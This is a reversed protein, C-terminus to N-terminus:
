FKWFKSAAENKIRTKRAAEAFNMAASQLRETKEGLQNLKDGRDGLREQVRSLSDMVGSVTKQHDSTGDQREDRSGFLSEKSHSGSTKMLMVRDVKFLKDFDISKSGGFMTSLFTGKRPRTKIEGAEAGAAVGSDLAGDFLVPRVDPSINKSGFDHGRSNVNVLAFREVSYKGNAIWVEGNSHVSCLMTDPVDASTGDLSLKRVGGSSLSKHTCWMLNLTRLSLVAANTLVDVALLGTVTERKEEGSETRSRVSIPVIKTDVVDAGMKFTKVPAFKPTPPPVPAGKKKAKGPEMWLKFLSITDNAAVVVHQVRPEPLGGSPWTPRGNVDVVHLRINAHTPKPPKLRLLLVADPLRYIHMNGDSMGVFLAARTDPAPSGPVTIVDHSVVMSCVPPVGPIAREAEPISLREPACNEGLACMFVSGSADAYAVCGLSPEHVLCHVASDNGNLNLITDFAAGEAGYNMQFLFVEGSGLGAMIWLLEKESDMRCKVCTVQPAEASAGINMDFALAAPSCAKTAGPYPEAVYWLSVFGDKQGAVILSCPQSDFPFYDFKESGHTALREFYGSHIPWQWDVSREDLRKKRLAHLRKVLAPPLRHCRYLSSVPSDGKRRPFACPPPFPRPPDAAMPPWAGSEDDAAPLPHIWMRPSIGMTPNGTLAIFGSPKGQHHTVEIGLVPTNDHIPLLMSSTKEPEWIFAAANGSKATARAMTGHEVEEDTSWVMNIGTGWEAPSGGVALLAKPSGWVLATVPHLVAEPSSNISVAQFVGTKEKIGWLLVLGAEYGAVFQKGSPHWAVCILGGYGGEVKPRAYQREQKHKSVNWLLLKGYEYGVLLQNENEPNIDMSVVEDPEGTLKSVEGHGTDGLTISYSCLGFAEATKDYKTVNVVGNDTAVYLYLPAKSSAPATCIATVRCTTWSPVLEGLPSLTDLSWLRVRSDWSVSVLKSSKEIFELFLVSSRSAAEGGEEDDEGPTYLMVEMGDKGYLRIVGVSTGVALLGQPSYAFCRVDDPTGYHGVFNRSFAVRPDVLSDLREAEASRSPKSDENGM